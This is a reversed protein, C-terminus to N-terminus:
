SIYITYVYLFLHVLDSILFISILFLDTTQSFPDTLFSTQRKLVCVQIRDHFCLTILNTDFLLSVLRNSKTIDLGTFTGMQVVLAVVIFLLPSHNFIVGQNKNQSGCVSDVCVCLYVCMCLPSLCMCLCVCVCLCVCACVCM